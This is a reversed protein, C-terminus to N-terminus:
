ITGNVPIGAQNVLAGEPSFAISTATGFDVDAGNGFADPTDPVGSFVHFMSGGEILTTTMVTTGSPVEQRLIQVQNPPTFVLTMNRRQTTALARARTLQARVTRMADNAKFNSLSIDTQVIAMSAGIAVVGAVVMMEVLSFGSTDNRM